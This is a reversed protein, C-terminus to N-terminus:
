PLVTLPDIPTGNVRVEFHLHPGTSAGTSGELGIPDLQRVRDGPHVLLANLHAYLTMLGDGHGVVVYTGYGGGDTSAVLVQGDQAADVPTNAPAAIDLGTHFHPYGGYSPELWLDSPGFGQTIAGALPWAMGGPHAAVGAVAFPTGTYTQLLVQAWARQMGSQLIRQQEAELQRTIRDALDLSQGGMLGLERQTAKVEADLLEATRQQQARLQGLTELDARQKAKVDAQEQRSLDQEAQEAGLQVLDHRLGAHLADGRRAAELLDVGDVVLGKLTGSRLLQGLINAPRAYIGRALIAIQHRARIIRARTLAMDAESQKANADLEAMRRRSRELGAEIAGEKADLAALSLTLEQQAELGAALNANLRARVQGALTADFCASYGYSQRSAPDIGPGALACQTGAPAGAVAAATAAPEPTVVTPSTAAPPAAPM